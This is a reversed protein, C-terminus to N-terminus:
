KGNFLESVKDACIREDNEILNWIEEEEDPELYLDQEKKNKLYLLFDIIEGVKTEPIEDVLKMIIEKATKM